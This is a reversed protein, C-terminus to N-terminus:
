LRSFSLSFLCVDYWLLTCEYSTFYVWRFIVRHTESGNSLFTQTGMYGGVGSAFWYQTSAFVANGEGSSAGTPLVSWVHDVRM